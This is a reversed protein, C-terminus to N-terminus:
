KLIQTILERGQEVVKEKESVDLTFIKIGLGSTKGKQGARINAIQAEQGKAVLAAFDNNFEIVAAHENEIKTEIARRLGGTFELDKKSIQRGKLARKRQYPTLNQGAVAKNRKNQTKNKSLLLRAKSKKGIYGGFGNGEIDKNAQFIRQQMLGNGTNLSSVLADGFRGNEFAEKIKEIKGSLITTDFPM